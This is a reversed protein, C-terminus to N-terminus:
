SCWHSESLNCPDGPIEFHINEVPLNVTVLERWKGKGTRSISSITTLKTCLTTSETYKGKWDCNTSTTALWGVDESCGGHNRIIYVDRKTCCGKVSILHRPENNLDTWPSDTVRTEPFSNVNDSSTSNFVIPLDETGGTFLLIGLWKMSRFSPYAGDCLLWMRNPLLLSVEVQMVSCSFQLPLQVLQEQKCVRGKLSLSVQNGGTM